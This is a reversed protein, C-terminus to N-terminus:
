NEHLQISKATVITKGYMNEATEVSIENNQKLDAIAIAQAQAGPNKLSIKSITTTTDIKATMTVSSYTTDQNQVYTNFIIAGEEIAEIMGTRVYITKNQQPSATQSNATTANSNEKLTTASDDADNGFWTNLEYGVGVGFLLVLVIILTFTTKINISSM